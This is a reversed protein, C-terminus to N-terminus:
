IRYIVSIEYFLDIKNRSSAICASVDSKGGFYQDSSIAKADGFKKQAEESFVICFFYKLFSNGESVLYYISSPEVEMDEQLLVTIKEQMAGKSYLCPYM